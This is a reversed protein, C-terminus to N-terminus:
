WCIESLCPYFTRGDKQFTSQHLLNFKINNSNLTDRIKKRNYKIMWDQNDRDVSGGEFLVKTNKTVHTLLNIIKEGDNSVDFHIFDPKISYNQLFDLYDCKVSEVTDSVGLTKMNENFDKLSISNFEYDEFLDIAIVKSGIEKAAKALYYTSFGQLVGIDCIIKPKYTIVKNYLTNGIEESYSSYISM